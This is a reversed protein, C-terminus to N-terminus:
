PVRRTKLDDNWIAPDPPYVTIIHCTRNAEDLAMVVHLPRGKVFGLLLSSPFPTDDPYDAIVEGAAIVALVEDKSILREFMRQVAHGSFKVENWRTM